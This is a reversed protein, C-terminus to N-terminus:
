FTGNKGFHEMKISFRQSLYVMLYFASCQKSILYQATDRIVLTTMVPMTSAVTLLWHLLITLLDVDATAGCHFISSYSIFNKM